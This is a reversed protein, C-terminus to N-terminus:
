ECFEDFLFVDIFFFSDYFFRVNEMEVDFGDNLCNVVEIIGRM